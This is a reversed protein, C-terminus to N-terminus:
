EDYIMNDQNFDDYAFYPIDPYKQKGADYLLVYEVDDIANCRDAPPILTELM